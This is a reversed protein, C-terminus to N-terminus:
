YQTLLAYYFSLLSLKSAFIPLPELLISNTLNPKPLLLFASIVKNPPPLIVQNLYMAVAMSDM